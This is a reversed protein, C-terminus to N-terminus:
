LTEATQLLLDPGSRKHAAIIAITVRNIDLLSCTTETSTAIICAQVANRRTSEAISPGNSDVIEEVDDPSLGRRCVSRM